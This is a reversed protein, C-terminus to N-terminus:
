TTFLFSEIAKISDKKTKITIIGTITIIDM